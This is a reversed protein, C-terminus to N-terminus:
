KIEDLLRRLRKKGTEIDKQTTKQTKKTFAHPILIKNKEVVLYFVRFIGSSDKVRLEFASKHVQRIPRSQPMGLAHGDQLLRLLAGIEQKVETSFSRVTEKAQKNWIIDKM